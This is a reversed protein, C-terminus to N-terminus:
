ERGTLYGQIFVTQQKNSSARTVGSIILLNLVHMELKTTSCAANSIYYHMVSRALGLIM